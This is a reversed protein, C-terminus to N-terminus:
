LMKDLKKIGLFARKDEPVLGYRIAWRMDTASHCFVREDSSLSAPSSAASVLTMLSVATVTGLNLM